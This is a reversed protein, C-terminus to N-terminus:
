PTQCRYSCSCCILLTAQITYPMTAPQSSLEHLAAALPQDALYQQAYDAGDDAPEQAARQEADIDSSEIHRADVNHKDARANDNPQRAEKCAPGNSPLRCCQFTSRSGRSRAAM